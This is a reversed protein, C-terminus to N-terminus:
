AGTPGKIGTGNLAVRFARAIRSKIRKRMSRWTPWFYPQAPQDKTGHEVFAAYFAKEDGAVVDASIAKPDHTVAGIGRVNPNAPMWQDYPHVVLISQYLDGQDIPVARRVASALEGAGKDVAAQLQDKVRRPLNHTWARRMRDISARAEASMRAM